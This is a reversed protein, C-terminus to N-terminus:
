GPGTPGHELAASQSSPTSHVRSTQSKPTHTEVGSLVRQVPSPWTHEGIRLRQASVSSHTGSCHTISRRRGPVHWTPTHVSPSQARPGTFEAQPAPSNQQPFPRHANQSSPLGQVVSEQSRVAAPQSGSLGVSAQQEWTGNSPSQSSPLKQLPGSVHTAPAQTPPSCGQSAPAVQMSVISRQSEHTVSAPQGSAGPGQLGQACFPPANQLLVPVRVRVTSVERHSSPAHTAAAGRESVSAEQANSGVVSPGQMAGVVGMNPAHM